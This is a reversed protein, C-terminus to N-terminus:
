YTEVEFLVILHHYSFVSKTKFSHQFHVLIATGLPIYHLTNNKVAITDMKNSDLKM